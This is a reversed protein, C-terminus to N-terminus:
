SKLRWIAMQEIRRYHLQEGPDVEARVREVVRAFLEDPVDMTYSFARKEFTALREGVTTTVPVDQLVVLEDPPHTALFQAERKFRERWSTSNRPLAYGMEEATRRFAERVVRGDRDSGRAEGDRKRVFVVIEQRAMRKLGDFTRQPNELLHLVHAMMAADFRKEAFPLNNADGMVLMELGKARAKSLMGRSLDVGVIEFGRDSLPKAIRGTGVGAELISICGDAALRAAAKNLAEDSLPERTEDYVPSIRDFRGATQSSQTM